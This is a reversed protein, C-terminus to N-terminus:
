SSAAFAETLRAQIWDLGADRATRDHRIMCYNLRGAEPFDIMALDAAGVVLDAMRRPICLVSPSGSVILPAALFYPLRVDGPGIPRGYAALPDDVGMAAGDPYLLVTRPLAALRAPAIYGNADRHRLVPHDRRVVCVFGDAFLPARRFTPPLAEDAYLAFDFSGDELAALTGTNWAALELSLAPAAAWFTRALTPLVVAAGYDTTAVRFARTSTAPDFTIPAFVRDTAAIAEAVRPM